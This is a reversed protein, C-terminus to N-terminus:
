NVIRLQPTLSCIGEFGVEKLWGETESVLSAGSVCGVYLGMDKKLDEPFVKKALVDSVAVRGGAKLLRYVEAFCVKKLSQELLNIVCNSIICDISASDLPIKTIPSLVFKVNTISSKTAIKEARDLMDQSM